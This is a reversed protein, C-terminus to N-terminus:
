KHGLIKLRKFIQDKMDFSSDCEKMMNQFQRDSSPQFFFVPVDDIGEDGRNYYPINEWKLEEVQKHKELKAYVEKATQHKRKNEGQYILSCHMQIDDLYFRRSIRKKKDDYFYGDGTSANIAIRECNGVRILEIADQWTEYHAHKQYDFKWAIGDKYHQWYLPTMMFFGSQAYEPFTRDYKDALKSIKEPDGKAPRIVWTPVLLYKIKKIKDPDQFTVASWDDNGEVWCKITITKKKTYCTMM